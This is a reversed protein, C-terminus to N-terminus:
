ARTPANGIGSARILDLGLLKGFVKDSTLGAVSL